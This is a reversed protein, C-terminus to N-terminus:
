RQSGAGRAGLRGHGGLSPAKQRCGAQRLLAVMPQGEDVFTRVYGEPAALELVDAMADVARAKENSAWLALSTLTLIEVLDRARGEAEAAERTEQLVHLAERHRGRAHHLRASTMRDVARAAASAGNANAARERELAAAGELDGRMLRLRAMWSSAIAVQLDAGSHRAVREARRAAELVGEGDGQARRIRSLTVYAWVLASVEGAREALELGRALEREARQLDDREYRLDAMGIHVVGAVPMKAFGGEALLRKARGFVEDAERLRGQETRVRAHMVMGALRGYAHGAARGIEAAKAFAEGAASLDGM